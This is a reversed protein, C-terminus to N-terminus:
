NSPCPPLQKPFDDLIPFETDKDGCAGKVQEPKLNIADRLKAGRLNTEQLIAGRMNAWRFHAQQLNAKLLNADQLDAKWLWGEQLNAGQLNAEQFKAGQLNAERLNAGQLNAGQFKAEQLKTGQLQSESLNLRESEGQGYTKKRRGIVTLIAQIDAPPQSPVPAKPFFLSSWSWLIDTRVRDQDRVFTTLVEMVAWHDRESDRAIRELAYIGGLRAALNDKGLQDIAKTFRDTIQGERSVQLTQATFYLGVLLAGGGVIQALTQRSKTELDLRDKIESVAAVQRQPLKWLLRWLLPLVLSGLVTAIFLTHRELFESVASHWVPSQPIFWTLALALGVGLLFVSGWIHQRLFAFVGQNKLTRWREVFWERRFWLSIQM